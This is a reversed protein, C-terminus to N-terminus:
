SRVLQLYAREASLRQTRAPQKAAAPRRIQSLPNSPVRDAAEDQAQAVIRTTTHDVVDFRVPTGQTGGELTVCGLIRKMQGRQNRMPLLLMRATAKSGSDQDAILRLEVIKPDVLMDALIAEFEARYVPSIVARAPMARLEMGMLGTLLRGALRFSIDEAGREELIFLNDLAGSLERPDLEARVPALRGARLREWYDFVQAFARNTPKLTQVPADPRFAPAKGNDTVLRMM